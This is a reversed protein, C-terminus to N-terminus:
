LVKRFQILWEGEADRLRVRRVVPSPGDAYTAHSVEYPTSACTLVVTSGTIEASTIAIPTGDSAHAEFGKAAAWPGTAHMTGFHRPDDVLARNTTITVKAGDRVVDVPAVPDRFTESTIWPYVHRAYMRGLEATGRESLHFNETAYELNTKGGVLRITAPSKRWAATMADTTTNYIGMPPNVYAASPHTLFMPVRRTQGTIARLDADYDAQLKEVDAAYTARGHDTEGHTLLVAAFRLEYGLGALLERMRTAEALSAAYSHVTGGKKIGDIGQGNQGVVIHATRVSGGSLRAIEEAFPAHPSQYSVNIPWPGSGSGAERMPEALTELKWESAPKAQPFPLADLKGGTMNRLVFHGEGATRVAPEYPAGGGRGGVSLSQGTGLIGWVIGAGPKVPPPPPPPPPDTPLPVVPSTATPDIPASGDPSPPTAVSGCAVLALGGGVLAHRVSVSWSAM